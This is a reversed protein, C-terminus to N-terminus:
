VHLRHKKLFGGLRRITLLPAGDPRVVDFVLDDTDASLASMRARPTIGALERGQGTEVVCAVDIDRASPLARLLLVPEGLPFGIQSHPPSEAGPAPAVHQTWSRGDFYRLQGPQWPDAFWGASGNPQAANDM